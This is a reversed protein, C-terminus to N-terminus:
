ENSNGKTAPMARLQDLTVTVYEGNQLIEDIHNKPKEGFKKKYLARYRKLLDRAEQEYDCGRNADVLSSQWSIADLLMMRHLERETM